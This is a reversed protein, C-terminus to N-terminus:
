RGRVHEEMGGAQEQGSHTSGSSVVCPTSDCGLSHCTTQRGERHRFHDTASLVGQVTM